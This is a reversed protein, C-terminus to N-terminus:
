EGSSVGRVGPHHLLALLAQDHLRHPGRLSLEIVLDVNEHRAVVREITLGVGRVLSEIEALATAEPRAHITIESSTGKTAIFAEAKGLGVLVLGM